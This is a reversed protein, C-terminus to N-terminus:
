PVRFFKRAERPYAPDAVLTGPAFGEVDILRNDFPSFVLGARGPVPLATPYTERRHVPPVGAPPDIDPQSERNRAFPGPCASLLGAVAGAM